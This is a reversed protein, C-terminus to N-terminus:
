QLQTLKGIDNLQLGKQEYGYIPEQSCVSLYFDIISFKEDLEKMLNGIRADIIHIGGFARKICKDPNLNPYPSKIEGTTVNTWGLLRMEDNFLLYRSTQRESVLLTALSEPRHAEQMKRVDLNSMIDVNHVLFAGEGLLNHKYAHRIAGGTDRLLDREDSIQFNADDHRNNLHEIIQEGFHHINVIFQDVGQQELRDIVIDIMPRGQYEVLAKPKTDTLPKLRTGLGAAFIFGKM